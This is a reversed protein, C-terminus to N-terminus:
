AARGIVVELRIEDYPINLGRETDEVIGWERLPKLDRVLNGPDQELRRALERTGIPGWEQIAQLIRIRRPNLLKHLLELSPFTLHDGQPNGSAAQEFRENVQERSAVDITLVKM